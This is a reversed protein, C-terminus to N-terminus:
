IPNQKDITSSEHHSDIKPIRWFQFLNTFVFETESKELNRTLIGRLGPKPPKSFLRDFVSLYNNELGTM